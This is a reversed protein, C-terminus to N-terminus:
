LRIIYTYTHQASGFELTCVCVSIKHWWCKVQQIKGMASAVEAEFALSNEDDRIEIVEPDCGRLPLGTLNLSELSSNFKTHSNAKQDVLKSQDRRLSHYRRPSSRPYQARALGIDCSMSREHLNPAKM